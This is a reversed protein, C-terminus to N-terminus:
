GGGRWCFHQSVDSGHPTCCCLFITSQPFVLSFKPKSSFWPSSFLYWLYICPSLRISIYSEVKASIHFSCIRVVFFLGEWLHCVLEISLCSTLVQLLVSTWYLFLPIYPAYWWLSLCWHIISVWPSRHWFINGRLPLHQGHLVIWLIVQPVLLSFSTRCQERYSVGSLGLQDKFCNIGLGLFLLLWNM